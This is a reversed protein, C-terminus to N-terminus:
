RRSRSLTARAGAVFKAVTLTAGAISVLTAAFLADFGSSTALVSMYTIGCCSFIGVFVMAVLLLTHEGRSSERMAHRRASRTKGLAGESPELGVDSPRNRILLFVAIGLLAALAAETAFAAQLSATRIIRVVVLPIVISALGSGMSTFGVVGGVGGAFWRNVLYTVSVMGGFGYGFGLFVAGAFFVPLSSAVSYILFGAATCLSAVLLGRRVDLTQYFRDVFLMAILSFLTRVSLILSGGTDGIGDMAVLYPQHVSFATSALGVNVFIAFFCCGIIVKDYNKSFM